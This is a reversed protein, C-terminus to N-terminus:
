PVRVIGKPHPLSQKQAQVTGVPASGTIVRPHKEPTFRVALPRTRFRPLLTAVLGVFAGFPCRKIISSHEITEFMRGSGQPLQCATRWSVPVPGTLSRVMKKLEWATFLRAHRCVDPQFSDKRWRQVGKLAFRNLFGFFVRDKAVRCAEEIAKLPNQTYELSIFFIAYNFSNDEFPLDEAYGRYLDVRQGLRAACFELMYPSPDLGTASLGLEILPLMSAGAGCGIDLVSEGASPKLLDIMLGYQAASTHQKSQQSAWDVYTRSDQFDFVYGM